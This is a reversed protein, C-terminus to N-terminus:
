INFDKEYEKYNNELIKLEKKYYQNNQYIEKIIIDRITINHIIKEELQNFKHILLQEDKLISPLLSYKDKTNYIYIIKNIINEM